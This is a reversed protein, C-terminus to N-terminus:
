FVDSPILKDVGHTCPYMAVHTCSHMPVHTYPHMLTHTCPHMLAHTCSHMPARICVELIETLEEVGGEVNEMDDLKRELEDM